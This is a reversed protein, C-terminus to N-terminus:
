SRCLEGKTKLGAMERATNVLALSYADRAEAESAYSKFILGDAYVILGGELHDWFRGQMGEMEGDTWFAWRDGDPMPNSELCIVAVIPWFRVMRTGNKRWDGALVMEVKGVAGDILWARSVGWSNWFAPLPCVEVEGRCVAGHGQDELADAHISRLQLDWPNEIRELLLRDADTM